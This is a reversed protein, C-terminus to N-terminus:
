YRGGDAARFGTAPTPTRRPITSPVTALVTPSGPRGAVSPSSRRTMASRPRRPAATARAPRSGRQGRGRGVPIGPRARCPRGRRAAPHPVRAAALRLFGGASACARHTTLLTSLGISDCFRLREADLVIRFTGRDVVDLLVARLMPASDIDLEGRVEVVTVEHHPLDWVKIAM